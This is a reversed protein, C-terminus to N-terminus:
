PYRRHWKPIVAGILGGVLGGCAAGLLAGGVPSYDHTGSSPSDPNL